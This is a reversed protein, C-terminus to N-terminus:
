QNYRMNSTNRAENDWYAAPMHGFMQSGQLARVQREQANYDGLTSDITNSVADTIAKTNEGRRIRNQAYAGLASDQQSYGYRSDQEPTHDRMASLIASALRNGNNQAINGAARTGNSVARIGAKIAMEEPSDMFTNVIDEKLTDLGKMRTYENSKNPKNSSGLIGDLGALDEPDIKGLLKGKSDVNLFQELFSKKDITGTELLPVVDPNKHLWQAAKILLKTNM